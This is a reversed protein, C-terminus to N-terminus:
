SCPRERMMMMMMSGAGSQRSLDKKKTVTVNTCSHAYVFRVPGWTSKEVTQFYIM